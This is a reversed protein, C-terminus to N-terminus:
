VAETGTNAAVAGVVAVHRRPERGPLRFRRVIVGSVAVAHGLQGIAETRMSQKGIPL